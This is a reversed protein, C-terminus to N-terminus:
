YINSEMKNKTKRIEKVFSSSNRNCIVLANDTDLVVTNQMDKIIIPKNNESLVLCNKSNSYYVDSNGWKANYDKDKKLYNYLSNWNEIDTWGIQAEIVLIRDMKELIGSEISINHCEPYVRDIFDQEMDTNYVSIDSEFISFLEPLHTRLAKQIKNLSCVILGSNWLFEESEVFIKALEAEPKETFTKVEFINTQIHSSKQIYGFKTDVRDPKIGLCVLEDEKEIFRLSDDITKNFKDFDVILNDSSSILINANPNIAQIRFSAYCICTATNRRIPELLIQHPSLEPLIETIYTLYKKNSVVFINSIKCIKSLIEFNVRLLSKGEYNIKLFQKPRDETSIPWFDLAAGGAM